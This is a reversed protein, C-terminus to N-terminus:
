SESCYVKGKQNNNKDETLKKKWPNSFNGFTRRDEHIQLTGLREDIKM